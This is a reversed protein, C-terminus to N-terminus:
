FIFRAILDMGTYKVIFIPPPIMSEGCWKCWNEISRREYHIRKRKIKMLNETIDESSGMVQYERRFPVGRGLDAADVEEERKSQSKSM